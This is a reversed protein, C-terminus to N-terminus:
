ACDDGAESGAEAAGILGADPGLVAPVVLPAKTQRLIGARVAGDLAAILDVANALGGGVPVSTVGLVNVLMALQGGVLTLWAAVVRAAVADGERWGQVIAESTMSAGELALALRELGRAGGITDLCGLQGCGCALAPHQVVPGHGWEGAYGGAGSVLRGSLVLGGGVGTGLIIGFVSSHGLGAGRRAEALVFCDADNLVRVPMALATMLDAAVARGDLCPINAVKARGTDPDVVGAVSISVARVGPRLFAALAAVFAGFDGAPTACEGLPQLAGDMSLAAKIRSGGIDFCLIM